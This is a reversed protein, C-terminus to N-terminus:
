GWGGLYLKRGHPNFGSSTDIGWEICLSKPGIEDIPIFSLGISTQVECGGGLSYTPLPFITDYRRLNFSLLLRQKNFSAYDFIRFPFQDPEWHWQKPELDKMVYSYARTKNDYQSFFFTSLMEIDSLEPLNSSMHVAPVSKGGLLMELKRHDPLRLPDYSPLEVSEGMVDFIDPMKFINHM